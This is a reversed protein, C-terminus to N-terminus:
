GVYGVVLDGWVVEWVYGWVLLGLDCYIEGILRVVIIKGIGM